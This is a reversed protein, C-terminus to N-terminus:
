EDDEGIYQDVRKEFAKVLKEGTTTHLATDTAYAAAAIYITQKSPLIIAFLTICVGAILGFRIIKDRSEESVDGIDVGMWSFAVVFSFVMWYVVAICAINSVVDALWLLLVFENM